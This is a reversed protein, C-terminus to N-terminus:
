GNAHVDSRETVVVAATVFAVALVAPVVLATWGAEDLRLLREAAGGPLWDRVSLRHLLIPVANEVALLWGLVGAVGAAQNRVVAGVAVGVVAHFGVFVGLGVVAFVVERRVLDVPADHGALHLAGLGISVAAAGGGVGAALVVHWGLKAALLRTRRPTALLSPVITGHRFEGAVALVGLLLLAVGAVQGAGRLIGPITDPGLVPQQGEPATAVALLGLAPYAVAAAAIAMAGRTTFSKRAEARVLQNM